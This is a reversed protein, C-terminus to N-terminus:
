VGAKFDAWANQWATQGAPSLELLFYADKFDSERVVASALNKPVVGESILRDPNISVFPPQYGNYQAFNDYGNKEDLMFNIFHHALVPSKASRPIGMMDNGITGHGSKPFWYGIVDTSTGEPLYWQASVMSGSWAQHVWARGEPIYTYDNTSLKVHVPDILSKLEKEFLKIDDPDETNIDTIGNKLLMHIPAERGDDLLYTKGKNDTDWYIEYPNSYEDPTKKVQDTRYGIGTTYITYPVTYRSGVDYFPSRLSPWVTKQLNPLYSHNLPQLAKGLILRGLRDPFPFFVDFSLGGSTLKQIAEDSTDFTTMRVDVGYQKGFEKMSRPWLYGNWNFIQLTSKEPDLGSAIPQNDEFIPWKVPNDQRALTLTTGSSSKSGGCAALLTGMSSFVFAGAASRQLFEKRGYRRERPHSM